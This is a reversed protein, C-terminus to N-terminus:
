ARNIRANAKVKAKPSTFSKYVKYVLYAATAAVVTGGVVVGAKEKTTWKSWGRAKMDSAAEFIAAKKTGVATSFKTWAQSIKEKFSVPAQKVEVPAPSVLNEASKLGDKLLTEAAAEGKKVEDVVTNVVKETTKLPESKEMAGVSVNSLLAVLALAKFSTSFSNNM